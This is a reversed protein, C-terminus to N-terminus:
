QNKDMKALKKNGPTERMYVEDYITKQGDPTTLTGVMTLKNGKVELTYDTQVDEANELYEVYRTGNLTYSGGNAGAFSKKGDKIHEKIFMWHTPTLIKVQKITDIQMKTTKGKPDTVKQSIMHWTGVHKGDNAPFNQRQWTEELKVFSGDPYKITGSQIMVNNNSETQLTFNTKDKAYGDWSAYELNEIYNNGEMTYTGGGASALKVRTPNLSDPLQTMWMFHTPTIIKTEKKNYSNFYDVEGTSSSYKASLLKWTGVPNNQAILRFSLFFLLVLIISPTRM